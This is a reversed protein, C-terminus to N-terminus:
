GNKVEETKTTTNNPKELTRKQEPKERKPLAKSKVATGDKWIVSKM